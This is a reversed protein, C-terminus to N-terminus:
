RRAHPLAPVSCFLSSRVFSPCTLYSPFIFGRPEFGHSAAMRRATGQEHRAVLPWRIESVMSLLVDLTRVVSARVGSMQGTGLGESPLGEHARVSSARIGSIQGTGLGESLLGEPARM